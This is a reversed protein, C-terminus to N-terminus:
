SVVYKVSRYFSEDPAKAPIDEYSWTATSIGGAIDRKAIDPSDPADLESDDLIEPEAEEDLDDLLVSVIYDQRALHQRVDVPVDPVLYGIGVKLIIILHEVIIFIWCKVYGNGDAWRDILSTDFIVIITNTVVGCFSVITLIDFWTGIGVAGLPRPRQSVALIKEADLRIEIYNNLLACLPSLPFAVVFLIVYGWQISMEDFDAFTTYPQLEYEEELTSKQKEEKTEANEVARNMRENIKTMLIPIGIELANSLVIAVVFLTGLQTQLETLCYPDSTGKGCTANNAPVSRKIFAIYFLSNYSNIFKFLFNKAILSNEYDSATRHNEFENLYLSVAGYIVNLIQIQIANIIATYQNGYKVNKDQM